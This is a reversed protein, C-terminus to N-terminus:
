ATEMEKLPTTFTGNRYMHYVTAYGLIDCWTDVLPENMVNQGDRSLLNNLRAIKDMMRVALGIEGSLTINEHGYDRQKRVLLSHIGHIDSSLTTRIHSAALNGCAGMYQDLDDLSADGSGNMMDKIFKAIQKQLGLLYNAIDRERWFESVAGARAWHHELSDFSNEDWSPKMNTEKKIKPHNEFATKFEAVARQAKRWAHSKAKIGLAEALESFSLRDYFVLQIITRHPEKLAHVVESVIDLLDWDPAPPREWYPQMLEEIDSMGVSAMPEYKM